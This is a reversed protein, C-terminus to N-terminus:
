QADTKPALEGLSGYADGGVASAVFPTGQTSRTGGQQWLRDVLPDVARRMLNRTPRAEPGYQALLQDLLLLDAALHQVESSQTDYSSKASAILLGLVLAAITAVLGAGLRVIDKADDALHHDPLQKRLLAGALVGGLIVALAI